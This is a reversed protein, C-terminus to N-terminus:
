ARSQNSFRSVLVTALSSMPHHVLLDRDYEDGIRFCGLHLFIFLIFPFCTVMRLALIRFASLDLGGVPEAIALDDRGFLDDGDGAIETAEDRLDPRAVGPQVDTPPLCGPRADGPFRSSVWRTGTRSIM